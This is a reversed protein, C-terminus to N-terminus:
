RLTPRAPRGACEHEGRDGTTRNVAEGGGIVFECRGVTRAPTLTPAAHGGRGGGQRRGRAGGDDVQEQFTQFAESAPILDNGAVKYVVGFFQRKQAGQFQGLGQIDAARGDGAKALAHAKLAIWVQLAHDPLLQPGGQADLLRPPLVRHHGTKPGAL